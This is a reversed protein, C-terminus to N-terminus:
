VTLYKQQRVPQAKSRKGVKYFHLYPIERVTRTFPSINRKKYKERVTHPIKSGRTTEHRRPTKTTLNNGCAETRVECVVHNQGNYLITVYVDTEM